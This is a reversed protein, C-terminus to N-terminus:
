FLSIPFATFQRMGTGTPEVTMHDFGMKRGLAAWASNAREQPSTPMGCQLMIAPVPQCAELIASLDETTMEYHTRTRTSM